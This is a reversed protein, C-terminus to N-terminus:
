TDWNTVESKSITEILRDWNFCVPHLGSSFIVAYRSCAVKVCGKRGTRVSSGCVNALYAHRRLASGDGDTGEAEMDTDSLARSRVVMSECWRLLLRPLRPSTRRQFKHGRYRRARDLMTRGISGRTSRRRM